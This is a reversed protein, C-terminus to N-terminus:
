AEPHFKNLWWRILTNALAGKPPVWCFSKRDDSDPMLSSEKSAMLKVRELSDRLQDPSFWGADELESTDIFIKEETSKVTAHFGLMLRSAPFAWHQSAVYETTIVDLGVEEAIERRINDEVSEGVEIFGSVCTFMGPLHAPQRVLLVKSNLEDSLITIGVPNIPPHHREKTKNSVCSESQCFKTGSSGFNVLVGGCDPCHMKKKHWSLLSCAQSTICSEANPLLFLSKRVGLFRGNSDAFREMLAEDGPIELAFQSVSDSDLGLFVADNKVNIGVTSVARYNVGRLRYHKTKDSTTEKHVLVKRPDCSFLFYNGHEYCKDPIAECTKLAQSSRIREAFSSIGRTPLYYCVISTFFKGSLTVKPSFVILNFRCFM